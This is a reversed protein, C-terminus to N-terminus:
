VALKKLALISDKNRGQRSFTPIFSYIIQCKMRICLIVFNCNYILSDLNLGFWNLNTAKVRIISNNIEFVSFGGWRAQRAFSLRVCRCLAWLGLGSKVGIALVIHLSPCEQPLFFFLISLSPWRHGASCSVLCVTNISGLTGGPNGILETHTGSLWVPPKKM